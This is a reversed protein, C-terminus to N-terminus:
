GDGDDGELPRGDQQVRVGFRLMLRHFSPKTRVDSYCRLVRRAAEVTGDTIPTPPCCGRISPQTLLRGRKGGEPPPKAPEDQTQCSAAGAASDDDDEDEGDQESPEDLECTCTDGDDGSLNGPDNGPTIISEDFEIPQQTFPNIIRRTRDVLWGVGSKMDAPKLGSAAKSWANGCTPCHATLTTKVAVYGPGDQRPLLEFHLEKVAYESMKTECVKCQEGRMARLWRRSGAM